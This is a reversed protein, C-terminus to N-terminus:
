LSKLLAQLQNLKENKQKSVELQEDVELTAADFDQALQQLSRVIVNIRSGFNGLLDLPTSGVDVAPLTVVPKPKVISMQPKEMPEPKASEDNVAKEKIANRVFYGRIPETILKSNVLSNLCGELTRGDINHSTRTLEGAIQQKSWAQKFPVADFVKSAVGSLNTVISKMRGQNMTDGMKISDQSVGCALLADYWGRAYVKRHSTPEEAM